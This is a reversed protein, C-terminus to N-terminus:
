TSGQTYKAVAAGGLAGLVYQGEAGINWIKARNGLCLGLAILILPAAKSAVDPWKYSALVPTFFIEWVARPGDYGIAWFIIAGVIMTMLVAGIPTLAQMLASPEQRKELWIRM